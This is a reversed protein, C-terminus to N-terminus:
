TVTVRVAYHCCDWGVVVTRYAILRYTNKARDFQENTAGPVIVPGRYMMVAGTAYLWQEGAPAAAGNPGTGPYGAGGAVLNGAATELHDGVRVIAMTRMLPSLARVPVHIVGVGNYCDALLAELVGIADGPSLPGGSGTVPLNPQLLVGDTDTIAGSSHALHPFVITRNGASGTWVAREIQWSEVQDLATRAIDAADQLGVPSCDFEAYITFPTAGRMQRSTNAALPLPPPPPSSGAGGTVAICEDYTTGGGILCRTEYTIGNQWHSDSTGAGRDEVVSLLGFRSPTFRPPGVIARPTPV